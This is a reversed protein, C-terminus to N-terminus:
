KDKGQGLLGQGLSGQGLTGLLSVLASPDLKGGNGAMGALSALASLNTNEGGGFLGVMRSIIGIDLKGTNKALEGLLDIIAQANDSLYPKISLFESLDDKTILGSQAASKTNAPSKRASARRRTGSTTARAEKEEKEEHRDEHGM